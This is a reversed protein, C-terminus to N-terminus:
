VFRRAVEVRGRALGHQRQEGFLHTLRARREHHHRVITADGRPCGSRVGQAVALEVSTFVIRMRARRRRRRCGSRARMADILTAAPTARAMESTITTPLTVVDTRSWPRARAPGVGSRTM